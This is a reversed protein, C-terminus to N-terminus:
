DPLGWIERLRHSVKLCPWGLHAEAESIVDLLLSTEQADTFLEGCLAVALGATIRAPVTDPNSAAIGCITRVATRMQEERQRRREVSGFGLLPIRPDCALLLIRCLELYQHAAIPCDYTFIIRPFTRSGSCNTPNGGLTHREDFIPLLTDPISQAWEDLYQWHEDWDQANIPESGHVFSTVRATQVIIRYTWIADSAPTLQSDINCHDAIREIPRKTMNAVFIEQRLAVLM